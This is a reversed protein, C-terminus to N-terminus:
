LYHNTETIQANDNANLNDYGGSTLPAPNAQHLPLTVMPPVGKSSPSTTSRPITTAASM